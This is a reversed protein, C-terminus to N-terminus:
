HRSSARPFVSMFLSAPLEQNMRAATSWSDIKVPWDLENIESLDDCAIAATSNFLGYRRPEVSRLPLHRVLMRPGDESRLRLWLRFQDAPTGGRADWRGENLKTLALRIFASAALTPVVGMVRDEPIGLGELERIILLAATHFLPVQVHTVRWPPPGLVGTDLKRWVYNESTECLRAVRDLPLEVSTLTWGTEM